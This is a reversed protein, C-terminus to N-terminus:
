DVVPRRSFMACGWQRTCAEEIQLKQCCTQPLWYTQAGGGGSSSTLAAEEYALGSEEDYVSDDAIAAPSALDATEEAGYDCGAVAHIALLVGMIRRANSWFSAKSDNTIIAMVHVGHNRHGM